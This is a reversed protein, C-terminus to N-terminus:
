YGELIMYNEGGKGFTGMGLNVKACKRKDKGCESFKIKGGKEALEAVTAQMSTIQGELDTKQGQLQTLEDRQWAVAIWVAMVLAACGAAVMSLQRWSTWAAARKLTTEVGAARAAVQDLQKMVPAAAGAMLNQLARQAADSASRAAATQIERLLSNLTARTADLAEAAVQLGKQQTEVTELLGYIRRETDM